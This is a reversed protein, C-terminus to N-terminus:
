LYDKKTATRIFKFGNVNDKNGRLHSNLRKYSVGLKKALQNISVETKLTDQCFVLTGTRKNVYIIQEVNNVITTVTERKKFVKSLIKSIM